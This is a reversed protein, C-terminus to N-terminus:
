FPGYKDLLRMAWSRKYGDRIQGTEYKDIRLEAVDESLVTNNPLVDERRVIGALAYHWSEENNGIERHAEIVLNGNPRIDVVTAAIRLQLNDRADLTNQARFQSTLTGTAKLDGDTMPAPKLSTGEFRIWDTLAAALNANRRRQLDGQSFTRSKEDVMVTIIDQLQIERPPPAPEFFWSTAELTLPARNLPAGYLSSSQAQAPQALGCWGGLSALAVVMGFRWRRMYGSM